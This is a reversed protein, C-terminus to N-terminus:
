PQPHVWVQMVQDAALIRNRQPTIGLVEYTFNGAPIPESMRREFPALHYTRRNVVITVDGSFTNVLEVHGTAAPVGADTPSFGSIRTEASTRNRLTDVDERLKAIEQKLEGIQKQATTNGSAANRSLDDMKTGLSSLSDLSKRLEELSRKMGDLQKQIDALKESDTPPGSTEALAPGTTLIGALLTQLGIMKWTRMMPTEGFQRAQLFCCDEVAPEMESVPLIVTQSLHLPEPLGPPSKPVEAKVLGPREPEQNRVAAQAAPSKLTDASTNNLNSYSDGAPLVFGSHDAHGTPPYSALIAVLAALLIMSLVLLGPRAPLNMGPLLLRSETARLWGALSSRLLARGLLRALDGPRARQNSM